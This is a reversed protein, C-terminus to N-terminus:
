APLGNRQESAASIPAAQFERRLLTALAQRARHLRIKVANSTIGLQAAVEATSVDEIDRMILISRHHEPLQAICERVVARTEERELLHDAPLDDRSFQEIHHGDDAFRPLLVEISEEPRRSRARLKMLAHNVVIRHLWTSIRCHGEFSPLARFASLYASQVADQADDDNRLLSLAVALMRGGYLRVLEEYAREDGARLGDLLRADVIDATVNRDDTATM